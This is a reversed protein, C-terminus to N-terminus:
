FVAFAYICKTRKQSLIKLLKVEMQTKLEAANEVHFTSVVCCFFSSFPIFFIFLGCIKTQEYMNKQLSKM